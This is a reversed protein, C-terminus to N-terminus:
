LPGATLIGAEDVRQQLGVRGTTGSNGSGVVQAGFLLGGALLHARRRLSSRGHRSSCALASASFTLAASASCASASCAKVAACIAIEFTMM